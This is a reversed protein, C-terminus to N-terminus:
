GSKINSFIFLLLSVKTRNSHRYETDVAAQLELKYQACWQKAWVLIKKNYTLVIYHDNVRRMEDAKVFILPAANFM